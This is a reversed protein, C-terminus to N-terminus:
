LHENSEIDSILKDIDESSVWFGDKDKEHSVDRFVDASADYKELSKLRLLVESIKM